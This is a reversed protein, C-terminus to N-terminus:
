ASRDRLLKMRARSDGLSCRCRTSVTGDRASLFRCALGPLARNRDITETINTGELRGPEYLECTRSGVAPPWEYPCEAAVPQSVAQQHCNTALSAMVRGQASNRNWDTIAIVFLGGPLGIVDPRSESQGQVVARTSTGGAEGSFQRQDQEPSTM